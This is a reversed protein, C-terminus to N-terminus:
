DLLDDITKYVLEPRTQDIDHGAGKVRLFRGGEGVSALSKTVQTLPPLIRDCFDTDGDCDEDFMVTYPTTPPIPETLMTGTARFDISEENASGDYFALESQYEDKTEAKRAQSLFPKAPPVPNISVFGAVSDPHAQAYMFAIAGGASFGVLVHPEDVKTAAIFAEADGLVDAMRRPTRAPPDSKGVGARDYACVVTRGELHEEIAALQNQNADEATGVELMVAPANGATGRCHGSLKRGDVRATVERVSSADPKSTSKKKAATDDGDDGGCSPMVLALVSLFVARREMLRGYSTPLVQMTM